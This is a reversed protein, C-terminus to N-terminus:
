KKKSFTFSLALITVILTAFSFMLTISEYVTLPIM